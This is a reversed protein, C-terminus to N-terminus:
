FFQVQTIKLFALRQRFLVCLSNKVYKKLVNWHDRLCLIVHKLLNNSTHIFSHIFDKYFVTFIDTYFYFIFFNM